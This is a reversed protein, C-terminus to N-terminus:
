SRFLEALEPAPEFRAGYTEHLLDSRAIRAHDPLPHRLVRIDLSELMQFFREPNGIAAVAHVTQASLNDLPRQSSEDLRRAATALLTFDRLTRDIRRSIEKNVRAASGQVLIEDVNLLRSVPERLPGAPLLHGNGFHRVGDIVAIEFDRGLRLHQLGDDAIIINAGLEIAKEAAAVRDPHVVVPGACRRALLVAEDGVIESDSSPTAVV